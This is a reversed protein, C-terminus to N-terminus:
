PFTNTLSFLLQPTPSPCVLVGEKINPRLQKMTFTPSYSKAFEANAALLEPIRASTHSM